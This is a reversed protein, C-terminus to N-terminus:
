ILRVLQHDEPTYVHNVNHGFSEVISKFLADEGDHEQFIRKKKGSLHYIYYYPMGWTQQYKPIDKLIDHVESRALTAEFYKKRTGRIGFDIIPTFNTRKIEFASLAYFTGEEPFEREGKKFQGRLDEVDIPAKVQEDLPEFAFIIKFFYGSVRNTINEVLEAPINTGEGNSHHITWSPKQTILGKLGTVVGVGIDRSHISISM